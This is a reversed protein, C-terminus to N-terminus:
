IYRWLKLGQHMLVKTEENTHLYIYQEHMYVIGWLSHGHKPSEILCPHLYRCKYPIFLSVLIHMMCHISLKMVNTPEPYKISISIAQYTSIVQLPLGTTGVKSNCLKTPIHSFSVDDFLTGAETPM